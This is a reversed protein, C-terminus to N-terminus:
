GGLRHRARSLFVVLACRGPFTKPDQSGLWCMVGSENCQPLSTELHWPDSPGWPKQEIWHPTNLNLSLLFIPKVPNTYRCRKVWSEAVFKWLTVLPMRVCLGMIPATTKFSLLTDSLAVKNRSSLKKKWCLSLVIDIDNDSIVNNNGKRESKRFLMTDPRQTKNWSFSFSANNSQFSFLVCPFVFAQRQFVHVDPSSTKLHSDSLELTLRYEQCKSCFQTRLITWIM